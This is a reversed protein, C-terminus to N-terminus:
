KRAEKIVTEYVKKFFYIVVFLTAAEVVTAVAISIWRADTTLITMTNGVWGATIWMILTFVAGYAIGWAWDFEIGDFHDERPEVKIKGERVEGALIGLIYAAAIEKTEGQAVYRGNETEATWSDPSDQSVEIKPMFEIM